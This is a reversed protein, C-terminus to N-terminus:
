TSGLRPTLDTVGKVLFEKRGCINEDELILDMDAYYKISNEKRGITLLAIICGPPGWVFPLIWTFKTNAVQELHSPHMRM